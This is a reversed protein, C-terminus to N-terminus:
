ASSAAAAITSARASHRLGGHTLRDVGAEDFPVVQGLPLLIAAEGPPGIAKGLVDGPQFFLQPQGQRVVRQDQGMGPQPGRQWSGFGREAGTGRSSPPGQGRRHRGADGIM